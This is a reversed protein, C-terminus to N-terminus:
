ILESSKWKGGCEDKSEWDAPFFFQATSSHVNIVAEQERRQFAKLASNQFSENRFFYSLIMQVFGPIFYFVAEHKVKTTLYICVVLLGFFLEYSFCM